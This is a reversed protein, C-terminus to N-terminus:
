VAAVVGSSGEEIGQIVLVRLLAVNLLNTPTQGILLLGNEALSEIAATQGM